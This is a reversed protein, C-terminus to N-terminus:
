CVSDATSRVRHLLKGGRIRCREPRSTSIQLRNRFPRDQPDNDRGLSSCNETWEAMADVSFEETPFVRVVFAIPAHRKTLSGNAAEPARFRQRRDPQRSVMITWPDKPLDVIRSAIKPCQAAWPRVKLTRISLARTQQAILGFPLAVPASRFISSLTLLPTRDVERMSRSRCGSYDARLGRNLALRNRLSRSVAVRLEFVFTATFWLFPERAYWVVAQSQREAEQPM